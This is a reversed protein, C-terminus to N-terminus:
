GVRAPQLQGMRESARNVRVAGALTFFGFSVAPAFLRSRCSMSLRVYRIFPFDSANDNRTSVCNLSNGAPTPANRSRM